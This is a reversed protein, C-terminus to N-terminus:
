LECKYDRLQKRLGKANGSVKDLLAWFREGHNMEVTHCLEHLLVYDILHPPLLLLNFSLNIVKKRSCSGWRTKSSQIKVGTFSFNNEKALQMLRQPLLRKAERRLFYEINKKIVTQIEPKRCDEHEPYQILLIGDKLSFRLVTLNSPIVKVVFSLTKLETSEDITKSTNEIPQNLKKIIWARKKQVFNEGDLFSFSHPIVVEVERKHKIKITLNKAKGNRYLRINGIEEDHIIKETVSLNIVAM